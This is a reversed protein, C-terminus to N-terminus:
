FFDYSVGVGFSRGKTYQRTIEGGQLFEVDDDLLNKAKFSIKWREAFKHSYVFDLQRFPQEYVDPSGSTGAESIRKGFVNFLLSASIGREKNDYGFQFNAVYPSQGQLPRSNNTQSGPRDTSLQIESEIYALNTSIYFDAWSDRIFSLDKYFELEIGQNEAFDANEFSIIGAAGPLIIM